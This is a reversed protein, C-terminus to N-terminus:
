GLTTKKCVSKFIHPKKIKSINWLFVATVSLFVCSLKAGVISVEVVTDYGEYTHGM